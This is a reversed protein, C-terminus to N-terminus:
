RTPRRPKWKPILKTPVIGEFAKNVIVGTLAGDVMALAVSVFLVASLEFRYSRRAFLPM